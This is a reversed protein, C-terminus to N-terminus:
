SYIPFHESCRMLTFSQSWRLARDNCTVHGRTGNESVNNTDAQRQMRQQGLLVANIWNTSRWPQSSLFRDMPRGSGQINTKGALLHHFYGKEESQHGAGGMTTNNGGAMSVSGTEMSDDDGQNVTASTKRGARSPRGGTTTRGRAQGRHIPREDERLRRRNSIKREMMTMKMMTPCPQCWRPRHSSLIMAWRVNSMNDFRVRVVTSQWQLIQFLVAFPIAHKITRHSRRQSYVNVIVHVLSLFLCFFVATFFLFLQPVRFFILVVLLHLHRFLFYWVFIFRFSFTTPVDLDPFSRSVYHSVFVFSRTVSTQM